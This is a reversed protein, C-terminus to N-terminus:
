KNLLSKLVALRPDAWTEVCQCTSKNRNGGCVACLGRCDGGCLPKMPLTLQFQEHMLQALDIQGDTYFATRLDSEEIEVDGETTNESAPLYMLDVDVGVPLRFPELCRCCELELAANLRGFVRYKTGDKRVELDLTATDVVTYQDGGGASLGAGPFARQIRDRQGQIQRLDLNM